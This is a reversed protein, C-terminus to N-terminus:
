IALSHCDGQALGGEADDGCLAGVGEIAAAEALLQGVVHGRLTGAEGRRPHRGCVCV